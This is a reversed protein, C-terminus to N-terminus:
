EGVPTGLGASTRERIALSCSCSVEELGGELPEEVEEVRVVGAVPEGKVEVVEEAGM